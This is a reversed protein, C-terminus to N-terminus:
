KKGAKETAYLAAQKIEPIIHVNTCAGMSCVLSRARVADVAWTMPAVLTM